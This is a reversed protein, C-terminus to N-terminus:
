ISNVDVSEDIIDDPIVNDMDGVIDPVTSQQVPTEDVVSSASPKYFKAMLVALLLFVSVLGITFWTMPKKTDAGLLSGAMGGGFVGSLGGGKGKQILVVFVLIVATLFWIVAVFKMILSAALVSCFAMNLEGLLNGYVIVLV